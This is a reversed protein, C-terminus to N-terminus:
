QTVGVLAGLHSLAVELRTQAEYCRRCGALDGRSYASTAAIEWATWDSRLGTILTPLSM